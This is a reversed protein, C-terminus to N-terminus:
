AHFIHGAVLLQFFTHFHASSDALPDNLAQRCLFLADHLPEGLMLNEQRSLRELMAAILQVPKKVEGGQDDVVADLGPFFVRKGADICVKKGM